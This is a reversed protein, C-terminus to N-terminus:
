TCELKVNFNWLIHILLLPLLRQDRSLVLKAKPTLLVEWPNERRKVIYKWDMPKRRNWQFIDRIISAGLHVSFSYITMPTNTAPGPCSQTGPVGGGALALLTSVLHEAVLIDNFLMPKSHPPLLHMPRHWIYTSEARFLPHRQLFFFAHSAGFHLSDLCHGPKAVLGERSFNEQKQLNEEWPSRMMQEVHDSKHECWTWHPWKYRWVMNLVTEQVTVGHEVHNRTGDCLTWRPWKYRWVMNLMTVQVMVGHELHDNTGDCWTWCSWKYWWVTNLTTVTTM